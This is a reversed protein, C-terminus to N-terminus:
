FQLIYKYDDGNEEVFINYKENMAADITTKPAARMDDSKSRDTEKMAADITTSKPAASMDKSKSRDMVNIAAILTTQLAAFM